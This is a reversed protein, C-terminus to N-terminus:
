PVQPKTFDISVAAASDGKVTVPMRREGFQPNKFTVERIGLPLQFNAIPTDGIKRGAIWVRSGRPATM